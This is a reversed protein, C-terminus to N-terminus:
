FRLKLHPYKEMHSSQCKFHRSPLRVGERADAHHNSIHEEASHSKEEDLSHKHTEEEDTKNALQNTEQM